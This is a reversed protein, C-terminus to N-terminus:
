ILTRIINVEEDTFLHRGTLWEQVELESRNIVAAFEEATMRKEKLLFAFWEAIRYSREFEKRQKKPISDLFERFLENKIM